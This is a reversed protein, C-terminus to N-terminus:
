AYILHGHPFETKKELSEYAYSFVGTRYPNAQMGMTRPVSLFQGPVRSPVCLFVSGICVSSGCPAAPCARLLM